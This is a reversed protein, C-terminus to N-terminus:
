AYRVACLLYKLETGGTVNLKDQVLLATGVLVIGVIKELKKDCGYIAEEDGDIGM